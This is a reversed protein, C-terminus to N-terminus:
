DGTRLCIDFPQGGPDILVRWREPKPQTAPKTAGLELCRAEAEDLDDVSLDLHYRKPTPEKPWDTPEYGDVRGFGISTVGDSIMAYEDMSHVVPWGLVASYFRALGAPDTCDLNVMALSAFGTM